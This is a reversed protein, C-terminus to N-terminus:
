LCWGSAPLPPHKPGTASRDNETQISDFLPARIFLCPLPYPLSLFPLSLLPHISLNLIELKGAVLKLIFGIKM